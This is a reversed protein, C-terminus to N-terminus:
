KVPKPNLKSYVLSLGSRKAQASGIRGNISSLRSRLRTLRKRKFIAFLSREEKKLKSQLKGISTSHREIIANLNAMKSEYRHSLGKHYKELDKANKAKSSIGIMAIGTLDKGLWDSYGCAMSEIIGLYKRMEGQQMLRSHSIINPMCFVEYDIQDVYASMNKLHSELEDALAAEKEREMGSLKSRWNRRVVNRLLDAAIYNGSTAAQGAKDQRASISNLTVNRPTTIRKDGSYCSIINPIFSKFCEANQNYPM